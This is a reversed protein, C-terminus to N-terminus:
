RYISEEFGLDGELVVIASWTLKEGTGSLLALQTYTTNPMKLIQLVSGRCSVEFMMGKLAKTLVSDIGSDRALLGVIGTTGNKGEKCTFAFLWNLMQMTNVYYSCDSDIDMDPGLPELTGEKVRVRVDANKNQRLAQKRGGEEVQLALRAKV